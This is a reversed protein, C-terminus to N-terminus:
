SGSSVEGTEADRRFTAGPRTSDISLLADGIQLHVGSYILKEVRVFPQDAEAMAAEIELRQTELLSRSKQFERQAKMARRIAGAHERTLSQGVRKASEVGRERQLKKAKAQVVLLDSSVRALVRALGPDRGVRVWTEVGQPSGIETAWVGVGACYTGGRLRGAGERASIIGSCEITSNTDAEIHVDGRCRLIANQTYKARVVERAQVVGVGGALIGAGVRLAKGAKIDADEVCQGVDID